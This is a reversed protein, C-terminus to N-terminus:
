ILNAQQQLENIFSNLSKNFMPITEGIFEWDFTFLANSWGLHYVLGNENPQKNGHTMNFSEHDFHAAQKNRYEKAAEIFQYFRDKVDESFADLIIKDLIPLWFTKKNDAILGAKGNGMNIITCFKIIIEEAILENILQIDHIDPFLSGHKEEFNDLAESELRLRIGLRERENDYLETIKQPRGTNYFRDIRQRLALLEIIRNLALEWLYLRGLTEKDQSM